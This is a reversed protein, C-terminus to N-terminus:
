AGRWAAGIQRGLRRIERAIKHPVSRPRAVTPGAPDAGHAVMEGAAPAKTRGSPEAAEAPAPGAEPGPSAMPEPSATPGLDATPEPGATPEPSAMPEPSAPEPAQLDLFLDPAGSVQALKVPHYLRGADPFVDPAEHFYHSSVPPRYGFSRSLVSPDRTGRYHRDTWGDPVFPGYGGIDIVSLGRSLALTPYIAETHGSWGDCGVAQLYADILRRSFCAIPHFSALHAASDIGPDPKFSQWHPDDARRRLNTAAYDASLGRVSRFFESWDGSYDVDYELFWIREFGRLPGAMAPFSFRDASGTWDGSRAAYAAREPLLRAADSPRVVIDAVCGEPLPEDEAALSYVLFVPLVSGAEARLREFHRRISPSWRHAVMMLAQDAAASLIPHAAAPTNL